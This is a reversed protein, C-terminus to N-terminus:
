DLFPLGKDYRQENSHALVKEASILQINTIISDRSEKLTKFNPRKDFEQM